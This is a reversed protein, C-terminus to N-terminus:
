LPWHKSAAAPREPVQQPGVLAQGGGVQERLLEPSEPDRVAFAPDALKKGAPLLLEFPLPEPGELLTGSQNLLVPRTAAYQVGRLLTLRAEDLAQIVLNPHNLLAGIAISTLLIEPELHQGIEQRPFSSLAGVRIQTSSFKM